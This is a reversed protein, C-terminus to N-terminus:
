FSRFCICGWLACQLVSKSRLAAHALLLPVCVCAPLHSPITGRRSQHQARGEVLPLGRWRSEVRVRHEVTCPSLFLRQRLSRRVDICERLCAPAFAGIRSAACRPCRFSSMNLSLALLGFSVLMAFSWGFSSVRSWSLSGWICGWAYFV